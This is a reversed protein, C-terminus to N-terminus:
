RETLTIFYYSMKRIAEFIISLDSDLYTATKIM